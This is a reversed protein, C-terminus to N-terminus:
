SPKAARKGTRLEPFVHEVYHALSGLARQRAESPPLEDFRRNEELSFMSRFAKAATGQQAVDVKIEDCWHRITNATIAGSSRQSQVGQKALAKAVAEFAHKRDTGAQVLRKVTGAAFGILSAYAESSPARGPRGVPALIPRVNNHELAALADQLVLIPLQLLQSHPSKFLVVFQWMAGLATFAGARGGDKEEDFLRRAERLRAFLHRLGANLTRVDSQGITEPLTGKFRQV